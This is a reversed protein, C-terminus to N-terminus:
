KAGIGGPRYAFSIVSARGKNQEVGKNGSVFIHRPKGPLLEYFQLIVSERGKEDMALLGFADTNWKFRDDGMIIADPNKDVTFSFDRRGTDSWLEVQVAFLPRRTENTVVLDTTNSWGGGSLLFGSNPYVTVSEPWTWIGFLLTGIAVVTPVLIKIIWSESRVLYSVLCYLFYSFCLWVVALECLIAVPHRPLLTTAATM